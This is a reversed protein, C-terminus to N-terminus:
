ETLINSGDELLLYDGTEMLMSGRVDVGLYVLSLNAHEISINTTSTENRLLIQVLDDVILLLLGTGGISVTDTATTIKKHASTQPNRTGNVGVAGEIEQNAGATTYSVSWVVQYIGERTIKLEKGNQFTTGNLIGESMGTVIYDVSASSVTITTGTDDQYMSGWAKPILSVPDIPIWDGASKYLVDGTAEATTSVDSLDNLALSSAGQGWTWVAGSYSGLENTDTAYAIMGEVGSLAEINTKTDKYITEPQGLQADNIRM